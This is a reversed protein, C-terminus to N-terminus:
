NVPPYILRQDLPLTRVNGFGRGQFLIGQFSIFNAIDQLIAFWFYDFSMYSIFWGWHSAMQTYDRWFQNTKQPMREVDM